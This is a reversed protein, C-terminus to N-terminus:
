SFSFSLFMYFVLQCFFCLCVCCHPFHQQVPPYASASGVLLRSGRSSYVLVIFHLSLSPASKYDVQLPHTPTSQFGRRVKRDARSTHGLKWSSRDVVTLKRCSFFFSPGICIGSLSTAQQYLVCWTLRLTRHLTLFIVHLQPIPAASPPLSETARKEWLNDSLFHFPNATAKQKMGQKKKRERKMRPPAGGIFKHFSVPGGGSHAFRAVLNGM